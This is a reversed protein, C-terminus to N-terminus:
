DQEHKRTIREWLTRAKLSVIKAVLGSAYTHIRRLDESLNEITKNRIKVIAKLESLEKTLSQNWRQQDALAAAILLPDSM